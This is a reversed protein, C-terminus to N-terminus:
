APWGATIDVTTPDAAAEVADKLSRAHLVVAGYWGGVSGAFAIGDAATAFTVQSNDQAIHTNYPSGWSLAGANALIAASTVGGIVALANESMVDIYKIAEPPGYPAGRNLLATKTANVASLMEAATKNRESWQRTYVGDVLAFSGRVVVKNPGSPAPEDTEVARAAGVAALAWDPPEDGWSFGPFRQRLGSVDFATAPDGPVIFLPM